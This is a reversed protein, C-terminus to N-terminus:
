VRVTPYAGFGPIPAEDEQTLVKVRAFPLGRRDARLDPILGLGTASIDMAVGSQGVSPLVVPNKDRINSTM